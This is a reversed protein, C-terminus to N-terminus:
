RQWTRTREDCVNTFCPCWHRRYISNSPASLNRVYPVVTTHRMSPDQTRSCYRTRTKELTLSSTAQICKTMSSHSTSLRHHRITWLLTTASMLTQFKQHASWTVKARHTAVSWCRRVICAGSKLLPTRTTIPTAPMKPLTCARAMCPVQLEYAYQTRSLLFEAFIFM